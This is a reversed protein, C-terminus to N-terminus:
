FELRFSVEGQRNAPSNLNQAGQAIVQGYTGNSVNNDPNEFQTRNFANFYDVQLVGTFRETFYFRKRVNLNENYFAPNRLGPYNRISNGLVYQTPTLSFATPNWIQAM